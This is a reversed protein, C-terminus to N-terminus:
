LSDPVRESWTFCIPLEMGTCVALAITLAINLLSANHVAAAAVSVDPADVVRNVVAEHLRTVEEAADADVHGLLAM